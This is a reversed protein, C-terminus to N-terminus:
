GSCWVVERSPTGTKERQLGRTQLYPLHGSKQVRRKSFYYLTEKPISNTYNEQPSTPQPQRNCGKTKGIYEWLFANLGQKNGETETQSWPQNKTGCIYNWKPSNISVIHKTMSSLPCEKPSVKHFLESREKKKMQLPLM